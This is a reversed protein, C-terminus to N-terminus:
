HSQQMPKMVRINEYSGKLVHTATDSADFSKLHMEFTVSYFFHRDDDDTVSTVTARNFSGNSAMSPSSAINILANAYSKSGTKGDYGITLLLERGETCHFTSMINEARLHTTKDLEGYTVVGTFRNKDTLVLPKGDLTATFTPKTLVLSSPCSYTGIAILSILCFIWNM